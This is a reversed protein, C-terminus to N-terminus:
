IGVYLAHSPSLDGHNGRVQRVSPTDLLEPRFGPVSGRSPVGSISIHLSETQSIYSSVIVTSRVIPRRSIRGVCGKTM